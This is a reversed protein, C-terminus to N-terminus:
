ERPRRACQRGNAPGRPLSGPPLYVPLIAPEVPEAPTRKPGMWRCNQSVSGVPPCTQSLKSADFSLPAIYAAGSNLAAPEGHHGANGARRRGDAALLASVPSLWSFRGDIRDSRGSRRRLRAQEVAVAYSVSLRTRAVFTRLRTCHRPQPCHCDGHNAVSGTFRGALAYRFPDRGVAIARM